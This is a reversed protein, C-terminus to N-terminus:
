RWCSICMGVVSSRSSSSTSSSSYWKPLRSFQQQEHQWTTEPLLNDAASNLQGPPGVRGFLTWALLIDICPLAPPLCSTCSLWSTVWKANAGNIKYGLSHRASRGSAALARQRRSDQRSKWRRSRRWKKGVKTKSRDGAEIQQKNNKSGGMSHWM